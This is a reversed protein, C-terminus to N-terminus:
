RQGGVSTSFSSLYSEYLRVPEVDDRLEAVAEKFLADSDTILFAHTVSPAANVKEVFGSWQNEDFLVGYRGGEAVSWGAPDLHDVRPGEAGAMLWLLPDIRGFALGLDVRDAAEYTLTFFEVSEELGDAMPFEDIFKYDGKVPEGEPTLGTVAAEIRPRTVYEFIGRSEWEPDGPRFGQKALMKQDAPGLENNTVAISRRRGGDQHNLRMLAHATTGSGAFFDVVLANPNEGVAIRLADEVAYLSKPFPFERGPLFKRLLSTGNEGARHSLRNWVTKVILRNRTPEGALMVAGNDDQGVVELQGSEIRRIQARGLYLISYQDRKSDYAGVKAYGAAILTRLYDPSCRWRGETGSKNLPWVVVTGDPVTIGSRDADPELSNGVETIRRTKADIFVPYFLKPSKARTADTGGRILWEWRVGRHKKTDSSASLLDDESTAPIAEGLFVFFAYEEVRGLEQKRAQGLPNIVITVLQIKSAPFLQDLLMGLRHIEKEDITVILVSKAPNLLRKALMLRKEMFSLWKSHRFGDNTDVYDNNYKWDKAGTNYPPDLYMADVQGECTYQLLELVHYNEGNIVVHSPKDKSRRVEGVPKLGPYIPEGFQRVVVLDEIAASATLTESAEHRELEAIGDKINRVTWTGPESNDRFQVRTRKTVPVEYLRVTEPLHREFVLGLRQEARLPAIERELAARLSPDTIRGLLDDLASM